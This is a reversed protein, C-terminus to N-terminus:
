GFREIRIEGPLNLAKQLEINLSRIRTERWRAKVPDCNQPICLLSPDGVLLVSPLSLRSGQHASKIRQYQVILERNWRTPFKIM